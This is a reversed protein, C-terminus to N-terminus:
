LHNKLEELPMDLSAALEELREELAEEILTNLHDEYVGIVTDSDYLHKSLLGGTVEMYVSPVNELMIHFDHLEDVVDQATMGNAYVGKWFEDLKDPQVVIEGVIEGKQCHKATCDYISQAGDKFMVTFTGIGNCENCRMAEEGVAGQQFQKRDVRLLRQM